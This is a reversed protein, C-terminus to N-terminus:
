FSPEFGELGECFFKVDGTLVTLIFVHPDRAGDVLVCGLLFWCVVIHFPAVAFLLTRESM